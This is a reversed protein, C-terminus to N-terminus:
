EMHARLMVGVDAYVATAGSKVADNAHPLTFGKYRELMPLDNEGDGMVLLNKEPWNFWALLDRLGEAKNVNRPTVDVCVGNHQALVHRGFAGNLSAAHRAGEEATEYAFGIQLLGTLGRAEELGVERFPTGLKPFWSRPQLIHLLTADPLSLEYHLSARASAHELIHPIVPDDLYHGVLLVMDRDYVAAGNCCILFDFPINWLDVPHRIMDRDRGTVIGFRNGLSRWQRIAALVGSDVKGKICLTGDYDTAAIRMNREM